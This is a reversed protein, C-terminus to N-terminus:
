KASDKQLRKLTEEATESKTGALTRIMNLVGEVHQVLMQRAEIKIVKQDNTLNSLDLQTWLDFNMGIPNEMSVEPYFLKRLAKIGEDNDAFMAKLSAMDEVTM